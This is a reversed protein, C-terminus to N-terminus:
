NKGGKKKEDFAARRECHMNLKLVHDGALEPHEIGAGHVACRGYQYVVVKASQGDMLVM